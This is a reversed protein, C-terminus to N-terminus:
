KREWLRTKELIKFVIVALVINLLATLTLPIIMPLFVGLFPIGVFTQMYLAAIALSVPGNLIVAVLIAALSNIHFNFHHDLRTYVQGFAWCSVFMMAAVLIHVPLTLAFGTLYSSLLHGVVGIIGGYFPGLVLAGLFAALSDFAISGQIKVMSGIASLAILMGMMVIKQINVNEKKMRIRVKTM